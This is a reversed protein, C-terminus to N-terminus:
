CGPRLASPSPRIEARQGRLTRSPLEGFQSRYDAAFKGMHWFGCHHAAEAVTAHAGSRLQRRVEDLRVAKLYAQPTMEFYERFAYDLTRWSVGTQECVQRVTPPQGLNDRIFARAKNLAVRRSRFSDRRPSASPSALVAVLRRLLEFELEGHLRPKDALSTGSAMVDCMLRAQSRVDPVRFSRGSDDIRRAALSRDFEPLGILEAVRALREETVSYTYGGFGPRSV